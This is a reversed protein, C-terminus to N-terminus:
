SAVATTGRATGGDILNIEEPTASIATTTAAALVPIYGGQNVLYQTHDATPDVISLTTEYSDDTAGVFVIANQAKM